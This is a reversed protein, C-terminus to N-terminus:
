KVKFIKSIAEDWLLPNHEYTSLNEQLFELLDINSYAIDYEKMFDVANCWASVEDAWTNIFTKGEIYDKVHGLEHFFGFPNLDDTMYITAKYGEKVENSFFKGSWKGSNFTENNNWACYPYNGTRVEASYESAIDKLEDINLM